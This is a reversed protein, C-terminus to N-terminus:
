VGEVKSKFNERQKARRSFDSKIKHAIAQMSFYVGSCVLFAVFLAWFYWNGQRAMKEFICLFTVFVSATLASIGVILKAFYRESHSESM